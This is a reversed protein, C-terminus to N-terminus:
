KFENPRYDKPDLCKNYFAEDMRIWTTKDIGRKSTAAPGDPFASCIKIRREQERSIERLEEVVECLDQDQSYIVAVGYSKARALKVVDLALRVDVGKEQPITITEETGDPHEVVKDHYRLKRTTVHVRQRKLAIVRSNWYGSWMPDRTPDPVGTYFRVLNPAWGHQECVANHLKIPDFNPHYHGFAAKAHQFLNQVDFFGM